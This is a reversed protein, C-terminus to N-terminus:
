QKRKITYINMYVYIAGHKGYRLWLLNLDKRVYKVDVYYTTTVTIESM